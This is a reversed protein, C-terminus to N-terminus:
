QIIIAACLWPLMILQLVCSLFHLLLLFWLTLKNSLYYDSSLVNFKSGCMVFAYKITIVCFAMLCFLSLLSLPLYCLLVSLVGALKFCSIIISCSAGIIFANYLIILFSLLGLWRNFCLVWCLIMIGILGIFKSLCLQFVNIKCSLFKLLMGDPLNTMGSTNANKCGAIIGILFGALLVIIFTIYLFKHNVYHEHFDDKITTIKRNKSVFFSM